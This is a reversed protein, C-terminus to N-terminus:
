AASNRDLRAPHVLCRVLADQLHNVVVLGHSLLTRAVSPFRSWVLVTRMQPLLTSVPKRSGAAPGATLKPLVWARYSGM